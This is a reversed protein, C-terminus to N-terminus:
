MIAIDGNEGHPSVNQRRARDVRPRHRRAPSSSVPFPPRRRRKKKKKKKKERLRDNVASISRRRDIKATGGSLPRDVYRYGQSPYGDHLNRSSAWCPPLPDSAHIDKTLIFRRFDWLPMAVLEMCEAMSLVFCLAKPCLLSKKFSLVYALVFMSSRRCPLKLWFM